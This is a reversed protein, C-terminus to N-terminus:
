RENLLQRANDIAAETVNNGSLMHAIETVREEDSLRKIHSVTHLATDEKYVCYHTQGCAAIQPLHTIAIVQRGSQQGGMRRMIHAMSEAIRGSVGTDIEDFIITPLQARQSTMAKIALMVRSTEGGSAVEAIPRLSANKNAAFLFTVRDNGEVTPSPLPSLQVLFAAHPMGLSLLSERIEHQVADIAKSRSATLAAAHQMLTQKADDRERKLEAIMEDSNTILDLRAELEHMLAVLEDANGAGHKKELTYLRDLRTNIEDLRQPDYEVNEAQSDIEQSIDKLEIYMSELRESLSEAQPYVHALDQLIHQTQRTLAVIGEIDDTGDLIQGAQYLAGKIEEAHALCNQEEELEKDEGEEPALEHLQQVQFSLYDEEAKSEAAVKIAESLRKEKGIYIHYAQQYATLIPSDEAMTDLVHLQFGENSLLLNQHQSHIDILHAGLEKLQVLTAPSDNIFARSKGAATLERRVTCADPDFDFGNEEFFPKLGYEHIDFEAEVVCKNAGEKISQSDARQGTLLSIAGLLISKGAGTEGTIVSFGDQMDLDLEEILAYNRIYLHRLM